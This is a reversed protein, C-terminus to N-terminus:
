VIALGWGTPVHLQSVDLKEYPLDVWVPYLEKMHIDDFALIAGKKFFPKYLELEKTLQETTHLSDIYWFDTNSLDLDKPWSNLDLDDGIVKILNPYRKLVYCFATQFEKGSIMHREDLTISYVKGSTESAMIMAATGWAGGLEVVQKPQFQKCYAGLWNYYSWDEGAKLNRLSTGSEGGVFDVQALIEDNIQFDKYKVKEWVQQLTM